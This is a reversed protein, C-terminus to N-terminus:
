LDAYMRGVGLIRHPDLAAKVNRTLTAVAPALPHFVGVSKDGGRFLTAHGGARAAADRITRADASSRLWRLGGGWEVVQAGPLALPPTVAPVALRWLPAGDAFFLHAHERLTM